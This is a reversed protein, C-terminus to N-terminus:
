RGRDLMQASLVAHRWGTDNAPFRALPSFNGEIFHPDISSRERMHDPDCYYVLVKDGQYTTCDPYNILAVTFFGIREL